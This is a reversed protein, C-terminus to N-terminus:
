LKVYYNIEGSCINFGAREYAKRAPESGPDLGTDVRAYRMGEKRFRDLVAKYMQQAFGKGRYEPMLANLGIEGVGTERHLGFMVYGIVREDEECVYVTDPWKECHYKTARAISDGIEEDIEEKPLLEYLEEGYVQRNLQEGERFANRGIEMIVPLDNPQFPRVM